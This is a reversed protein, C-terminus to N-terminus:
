GATNFSFANSTCAAFVLYGSSNVRFSSTSFVDQMNYTPAMVEDKTKRGGRERGHCDRGGEGLYFKSEPEAGM